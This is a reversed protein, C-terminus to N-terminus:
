DWFRAWVSEFVTLKGLDAVQGRALLDHRYVIEFSLVSETVYYSPRAISPIPPM